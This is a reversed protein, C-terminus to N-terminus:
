GPSNEEPTSSQDLGGWSRGPSNEGPTSSQSSTSAKRKRPLISDTSLAHSLIHENWDECLLEDLSCTLEFQSLSPWQHNMAARLQEETVRSRSPQECLVCRQRLDGDAKDSNDTGKSTSRAQEQLWPTLNSHPCMNPQEPIEFEDGLPWPVIKARRTIRLVKEADFNVGVFRIRTEDCIPCHMEESQLELDHRPWVFPKWSKTTLNLNKCLISICFLDGNLVGASFEAELGQKALVATGVVQDVKLLDM